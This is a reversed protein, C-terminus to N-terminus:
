LGNSYLRVFPLLLFPGAAGGFLLACVYYGYWKSSAAKLRKKAVENALAGVDGEQNEQVQKEAAVRDVATVEYQGTNRLLDKAASGMSLSTIGLHM